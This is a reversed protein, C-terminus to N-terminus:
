PARRRLRLPADESVVLLTTGAVVDAALALPTGDLELFDGAGLRRGDIDVGGATVLILIASRVSAAGIEAGPEARLLFVCEGLGSVDPALAGEVGKRMTRWDLPELQRVTEPPAIRGGDATAEFSRGGVVEARWIGGSAAAASMGCVPCLELHGAVALGMGPSINAIVYDSILQASPHHEIRM